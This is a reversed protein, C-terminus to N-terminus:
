IKGTLFIQESIQNTVLTSLNNNRWTLPYSLEIFPIHASNLKKKLIFMSAVLGYSLLLWCSAINWYMFFDNMQKQKIHKNEQIFLSFQEKM